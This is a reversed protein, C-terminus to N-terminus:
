AIVFIIFLLINIPNISIEPYKERAIDCFEPTIEVGLYDIKKDPYYYSLYGFYDGVGAGVDLLSFNTDGSFIHSIYKYRLNKHEISESGVAKILNDNKKLKSGWFEKQKGSIDKNKEGNM